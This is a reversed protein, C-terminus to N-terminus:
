PHLHL